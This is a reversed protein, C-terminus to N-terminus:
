QIYIILFFAAIWALVILQLPRDKILLKTPDGSINDVLTLQLYRLLGILVLISTLYLHQSHLRTTVEPSVTYMIYCVMTVAATITIAQNIFNLNYRNTNKRPAHGTTEMLKVDDRRKALSMFLTLLFTMLVLWSTATVHTAYSGALIRLVFGFAVICVDMVAYQKLRICYASNMLLYLTIVVTTYGDGTGAMYSLIIGAVAMIAAMIIATSTKVAGSAVPRKCKVPHQRDYEADVVDNLCYIAAASFTFAVFALVAHYLLATNTINGSFFLPIFVFLNKLWQAPRIIKIIDKM